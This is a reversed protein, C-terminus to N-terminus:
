GILPNLKSLINKWDHTNPIRNILLYDKKIVFDLLYPKYNTVVLDTKEINLREVTLEQLPIFKAHYKEGLINNIQIRISQILLYDGELIFAIERVPAYYSLIIDYFMTLSAVVDEFYHESINLVDTNKVLFDYNIEYVLPHIDKTRAMEEAMIKNLIPCISDNIKKSLFFSSLFLSMEEKNWNEFGSSHFYKEVLFKIQSWQNFREYFLKEKEKSYVSRKCVIIMAVWIFEEIPVFIGYEKKILPQFSYFLLFDKSSLFNMEYIISPIEIPHGSNSRVMAIYFYYYFATTMVSTGIEFNGIEKSFNSFVLDHLGNPPFVTYPTQDGEYFFDFFFTRINGEDGEINVPKLKLKLDYESLALSIQAASRQMTSESYNYKDALDDLSLQNGYFIDSIIEFWIEDNLLAKKKELYLTRDDENFVYGTNKSTFSATNEFYIKMDNIDKIITRKSINLEKSLNNITFLHEKEIIDLIRLQRETITNTVFKLQLERM